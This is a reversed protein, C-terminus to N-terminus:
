EGINKLSRGKILCRLKLVDLLPSLMVMSAAVLAVLELMQDAAGTSQSVFLLPCVQNPLSIGM